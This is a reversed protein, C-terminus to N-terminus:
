KAGKEGAAKAAERRKKLAELKNKLVSVRADAEEQAQEEEMLRDMILERDERDRKRRLGEEDLEEEKGAGGADGPGPAAAPFGAPVEAELVPEAAVTAREYTEHYEPANVVAQQFRAWEADLGGVAAPAGAHGGGDDGEEEDEDDERPPPAMSPDSFFDAPFAHARGATSPAPEESVRRKKADAMRTDGDGDRDGDGDGGGGGEDDDDDDVDMSKRKLSAEREREREQEQAERAQEQRLRAANTRHAKSGVHGEWATKVPTGCALCRLVGAANYSVLPHTIRADQRKAKLLARVDAM